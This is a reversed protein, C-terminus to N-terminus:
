SPSLGYLKFTGTSINGATFTFQIADVDAASKRVSSGNVSHQSANKDFYALVWTCFTYTTASPNYILVEGVGSEGTGTGFDTGLSIQNASTGWSFAGSGSGLVVVKTWSYDGSTGDYSSGNNSSTKLIFNVTDNASNLNDIVVKYQYYESSLDTFTVSSSASATATSLYTWGVARPKYAM